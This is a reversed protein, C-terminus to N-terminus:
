QPYPRASRHRPPPRSRTGRRRPDSDVPIRPPHRRKAPSRRRRHDLRPTKQTTQKSIPTPPSPTPVILSSNHSRPQRHHHRCHRRYTSHHQINNGPIRRQLMSPLPRQSRRLQARHVHLLKRVGVILDRTEADTWKRRMRRAKPDRSSQLVPESKSLSIPETVLDRLSLGTESPLPPGQPLSTPPMLRAPAKPSPTASQADRLIDKVQIKSSTARGLSPHKDVDISPLLAASPPPEHLGTVMAPLLPAPRSLPIEKQAPRPLQRGLDHAVYEADQELRPRKYLPGHGLQTPAPIPSKEVVSLSIFSPLQQPINEVGEDDELLESIALHPKKSERALLVDNPTIKPTRQADRPRDRRPSGRLTRVVNIVNGTGPELPSPVNVHKLPAPNRLPAIHFDTLAPLDSIAFQPDDLLGPLPETIGNM